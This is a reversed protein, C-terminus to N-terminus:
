IGDDDEEQKEPVILCHRTTGDRLPVDTGRYDLSVRDVGAPGIARNGPMINWFRKRNGFSM